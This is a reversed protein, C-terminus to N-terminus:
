VPASYAVTFPVLVATGAENKLPAAAGALMSASWVTGGVTLDGRLDDDCAAVLALADATVRTLVDDTGESDADGTQVVVACDISGDERQRTCAMDIWSRTYRSHDTAGPRGYLVLIWAGDGFSGGVPAGRRVRVDADVSASWRTMLQDTLADIPSPSTM